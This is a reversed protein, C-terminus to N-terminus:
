NTTFQKNHITFVSFKMYIYFKMNITFETIFDKMNQETLQIKGRMKSSFMMFFNFTIGSFYRIPLMARLLSPRRM